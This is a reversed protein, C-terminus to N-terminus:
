ELLSKMKQGQPAFRRNFGVMLINSPSYATEIKNMEELTLCLPKEVFVHKQNKLAKVVFDAHTNHQTAIVVADTRKDSLLDIM